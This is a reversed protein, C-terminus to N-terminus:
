EAQAAESERRAFGTGGKGPACVQRRGRELLAEADREGLQVTGAGM